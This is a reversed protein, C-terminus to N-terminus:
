NHDEERVSDRTMESRMAGDMKSVSCTQQVMDSEPKGTMDIQKMETKMLRTEQERRENKRRNIRKTEEKNM